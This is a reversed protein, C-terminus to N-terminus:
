LLWRLVGPVLLAFVNKVSSIGTLSRCGLWSIWWCVLAGLFVYSADRQEKWFIFRLTFILLHLTLLSLSLFIVFAPVAIHVGVNKNNNKNNYTFFKYYWYNECENNELFNCFKTKENGQWATLLFFYYYLYMNNHPCEYTEDEVDEQWKRILHQLSNLFEPVSLEFDNWMAKVYFVSIHLGKNQDCLVFTWESTLLYTSFLIIVGKVPFM